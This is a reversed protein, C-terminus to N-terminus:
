MTGCILTKQVRKTRGKSIFIALRELGEVARKKQWQYAPWQEYMVIAEIHPHCFPGFVDVFENLKRKARDIKGYLFQRREPIFEEPDIAEWRRWDLVAQHYKDGARRAELSIHGERHMQYLKCGWAENCLEAELVLRLRNWMVRAKPRPDDMLDLEEIKEAIM